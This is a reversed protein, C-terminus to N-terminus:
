EAARSDQSSCRSGTPSSSQGAAAVAAGGRVPFRMEQPREGLDIVGVAALARMVQYAPDVEFWRAAFNPSMGFKHHNNQFLEGLTVFDFALTNRSDDGNDYNRYGYRHGCWNVIAGHIPGMVFHAPLLLWHWWASAFAVYFATYGALWAFRMPWSQGLRDLAPWEPVGGEFRPEPRERDYAYADYRHKTHWMMTFPNGFNRPSHPDDATDSFAHHQRHLIAYGRPNLYSAGQSVYTLLHFFREWGKSMTFMRHAGYRHLFFTQCFVSLVWHSAFFILIALTGTEM